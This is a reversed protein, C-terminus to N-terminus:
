ASRAQQARERARQRWARVRARTKARRRELRERELGDPTWYTASCVLERLRETSGGQHLWDFVDAGAPIESLEVVKVRLQVDCANLVDTPLGPLPGVTQEVKMANAKWAPGYCAAAVRQAHDRGPRDADPLIVLEVCGARWLDVTWQPKWTSAGAPPCTAPIGRAWLEDGAKEGEVLYVQRVDVLDAARYLGVTVDSLGWRWRDCRDPTRWRFTKPAFRVKQALLEGTIPDIYDYTAVIEPRTAGHPKGSFLDAVILNLASVITGLRCGAFCYLLVRDERRTVVLSPQTDRHTPCIARAM